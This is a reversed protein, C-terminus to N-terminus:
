EGRGVESARSPEERGILRARRGDLMQLVDEDRQRVDGGDIRELVPNVRAALAVIGLCTVLGPEPNAGPEFAAHVPATQVRLADGSPIPLEMYEEVGEVVDFVADRLQPREL